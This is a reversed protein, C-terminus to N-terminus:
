RIALKIRNSSLIGVATKVGSLKKSKAVLYNQLTATLYITSSRGIEVCADGNSVFLDREFVDSENKAHKRLYVRELVEDDCGILLSFSRTSTTKPAMLRFSSLSDRIGYKSVTLERGRSDEIILDISALTPFLVSTDGTNMIAVDILLMESLSAVPKRSVIKLVASGSISQASEPSTQSPSLDFESEEQFVPAQLQTDVPSWLVLLFLILIRFFQM